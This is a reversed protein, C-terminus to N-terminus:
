RGYFSSIKLFVPDNKIQDCLWKLTINLWEDRVHQEYIRQEKKGGMREGAEEEEKRGGERGEKRRERDKRKREEM